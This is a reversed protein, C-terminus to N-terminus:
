INNKPTIKIQLETFDSVLICNTPLLKIDQKHINKNGDRICVMQWGLNLPAIFDKNLNDAIYIFNAEPYKNEFFVFNRYDPKESGFEESIIIDDFYDKLGLSLLKNRQTVSRGDTILGSKIGKEKISNLFFRTANDLEINPVHNRYENLLLEKNLNPVVSSYEELVWDFVNSGSYYHHLMKEVLDKRTPKVINLAIHRYASVLYDIEKYLTDDLDFIVVSNSDIKLDM